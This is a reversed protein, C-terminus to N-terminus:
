DLVVQPPNSNQLLHGAGEVALPEDVEAEGAVFGDGADGRRESRDGFSSLYLLESVDGVHVAGLDARAVRGVLSVVDVDGGNAGALNIGEDRIGESLGRSAGTPDDLV